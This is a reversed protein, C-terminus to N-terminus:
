AVLPRAHTTFFRMSASLEAAQVRLAEAAAAAQEVLAANQQTVADMDAIAGSVEVISREQEGGAASIGAMIATVQGIGSLIDSMSAGAADALAAGHAIQRTSDAILQKIERAAGASRQALSRVETAVVAFGRGHEGARAAEVAANLALINTQFAIADIVGTIDAIEKGHAHIAAMTRAVEAVVAGGKRASESASLALANGGRAHGSNSRVVATLEEMSAATQQLASAQRETRESLDLNGAAIERAALDVALAGDNVTGVIAGLKAAMAGLADFLQGIEDARGHAIAAGLEGRAVRETLSVARKLPPAISNTLLWALAVGIAAAGVGMGVLLSRSDDFQRASRLALSHAQRSQFTLAAETAEVYAAFAPEMRAGILIEVDGTKGQDKWAFAQARVAQYAAGREAAARLLAREQAGAPLRALAAEIAGQIREGDVLQTKFYDGLEMSDSRAISVARVGNLRIAGLQESLLLQKALSDDVLRAVAQEAGQQRWLSIATMCAMIALVVAFSSFVRM